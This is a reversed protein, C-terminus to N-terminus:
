SPYLAQGEETVRLKRTSRQILRVGLDAELASVKKSVSSKAIGLRRAAGSFSGCDLVEAFVLLAEIERM